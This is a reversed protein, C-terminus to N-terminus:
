DVREGGYTPLVAPAVMKGVFYFTVIQVVMSGVDAFFSARYSWADLLDRRGFAPVKVLEGIADGVGTRTAAPEISM